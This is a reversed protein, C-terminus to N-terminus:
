RRTIIRVSNLYDDADRKLYGVRSGQKVFAPGKKEHRWKRLAHVSVDLYVATEHENMVPSTVQDENSQKSM